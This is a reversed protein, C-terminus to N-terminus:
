EAVKLVVTCYQEFPLNGSGTAAVKKRIEKKRPGFKRLLAGKSRVRSFEGESNRFWYEERIKFYRTLDYRYNPDRYGIADGNVNDTSNSLVKYVSRYVKESGEGIVQYFGEALPGDPGIGVFRRGATQIFGVRAPALSVSMYSGPVRVLARQAVADVNVSVDYYTRGQVEISGQVYDPSTWYPNGNAPFGYWEAQEGRLLTSGAGALHQFEAIETHPQAAACVTFALFQIIFFHKRM